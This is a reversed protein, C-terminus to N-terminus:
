LICIGVFFSSSAGVLGRKWGAGRLLLWLLVVSLLLLLLHRHSSHLPTSSTKFSVSSFPTYKVIALHPSNVLLTEILDLKLVMIPVSVM